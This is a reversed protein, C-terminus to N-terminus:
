KSNSILRSNKRSILFVGALIVVLGLYVNLGAKEDLFIFFWLVTFLPMLYTVTLAKVAGVEKILQYYIIFPVATCM